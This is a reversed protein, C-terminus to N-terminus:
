REAALIEWTHKMQRGQAGGSKSSDTVAGTWIQWSCRIAWGEGRQRGVIPSKGRLFVTSKNWCWHEPEKCDECNEEVAAFGMLIDADIIDEFDSFLIENPGFDREAALDLTSPHYTWWIKLRGESLVEKVKAIWLHHVDEGGKM